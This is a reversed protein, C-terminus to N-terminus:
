ILVRYMMMNRGIELNRQTLYAKEEPSATPPIWIALNLAAPAAGATAGGLNLGGMGQSGSMSFDLGTKPGTASQSNNFSTNGNMVSGGISLAGNVQGGLNIQANNAQNNSTSAAGMKRRNLITEKFYLIGM